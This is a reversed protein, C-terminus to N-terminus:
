PRREVLPQDLANLERQFEAQADVHRNSAEANLARDTEASFSPQDRFEYGRGDQPQGLAARAQVVRDAHLNVRSRADCWTLFASRGDGTVAADRFARHAIAEAEALAAAVTTQDAMVDRAWAQRRDTLLALREAALRDAIEGAARAESALRDREATVSELTQTKTTM